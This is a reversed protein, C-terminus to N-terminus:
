TQWVVSGEQNITLVSVRGSGSCDHCQREIDATEIISEVLVVGGGDCTPCETTVALAAKLAMRAHYGWGPAEEVIEAPTPIDESELFRETRFMQVAMAGIVERGEPSDLWDSVRDSTMPGVM